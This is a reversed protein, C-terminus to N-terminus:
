LSTATGQGASRFTTTSVSWDVLKLAGLITKEEDPGFVEALRIVEAQQAVSLGRWWETSCFTSELHALMIRVLANARQERPLNTVSLVFREIGPCDPPWSFVVYNSGSGPEAPVMGLLLPQARRATDTLDQVRENSLTWSPNACGASAIGLTGDIRFVAAGWEAFNRTRVTADAASKYEGLESAALDLGSRYSQLHGQILRQASDSRGRDVLQRAEEMGADVTRKAFLEHCLVRYGLLFTQEPAGTFEEREIPAFFNMDHNGCFGPFTSAEKWGVRSVANERRDALVSFKLVHQTSDIIQSLVGGRQITHARVVKTCGRPADPHLCVKPLTGSLKSRIAAFPLQPESQRSLHCKKYKKGSGCWCTDNRGLKTTM